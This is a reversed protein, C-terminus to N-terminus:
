CKQNKESIKSPTKPGSGLAWIMSVAGLRRGLRSWVACGINVVVVVAFSRPSVRLKLRGADKNPGRLM